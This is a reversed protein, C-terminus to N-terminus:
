LDDPFELLRRIFRSDGDLFNRLAKRFLMTFIVLAFDSGMPDSAQYALLESQSCLLAVPSEHNRCAFLRLESMEILFVPDCACGDVRDTRGVEYPRIISTSALL